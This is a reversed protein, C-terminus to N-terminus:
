APHNVFPQPNDCACNRTEAIAHLFLCVSFHLSKNVKDQLYHKGADLSLTTYM